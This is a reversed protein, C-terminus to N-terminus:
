NCHFKCTHIQFSVLISLQIIKRLFQRLKNCIRNHVKTHYIYRKRFYFKNKDGACERQILNTQDKERSQTKM